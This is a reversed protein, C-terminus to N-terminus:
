IFNPYLKDHAVIMFLAEYLPSPSTTILFGQVYCLHSRLNSLSTLYLQFCKQSCRIAWPNPDAFISFIFPQYKCGQLFLRGIGDNSSASHSSIPNTFRSRCRWGGKPTAMSSLNGIHELILWNLFSFLRISDLRVVEYEYNHRPRISLFHRVRLSHLLASWLLIVLWAVVLAAFFRRIPSRRRLLVVHDHHHSQPVTQPIAQPSPIPNPSPTPILTYPPPATAQAASSTTANIEVDKKLPSREDQNDTPEDLITM